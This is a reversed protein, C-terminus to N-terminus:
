GRESEHHHLRMVPRVESSAWLCSGSGPECKRRLLSCSRHRRKPEAHAFPHARLLFRLCALRIILIIIHSLYAVSDKFTGISCHRTIGPVCLANPIM